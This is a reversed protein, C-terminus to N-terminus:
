LDAFTGRRMSCTAIVEDTAGNRHKAVDFLVTNQTLSGDDYETIDYYEGCWLFVMCDADKELSGSERLDSLLPRKDGGGEEVDRSLQSLAPPM